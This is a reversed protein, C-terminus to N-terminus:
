ACFESRNYRYPRKLNFCSYAEYPNNNCTKCKIQRVTNIFLSNKIFEVVGRLETEPSKKEDLVRPVQVSMISSSSVDKNNIM